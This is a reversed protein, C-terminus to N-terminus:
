CLKSFDKIAYGLKLYNDSQAEVNILHSKCIKVPAALECVGVVEGLLFVGSHHDLVLHTRDVSGRRLLSKM